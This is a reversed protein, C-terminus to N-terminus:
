PTVTEAPTAETPAASAAPTASIVPTVNTSADQTTIHIGTIKWGDASKGFVLDVNYLRNTLVAEGKMEAKDNSVNTDSFKFSEFHRPSAFAVWNDYSGVEEKINSSLLDWSALHDGNKLATMFTAGVSSVTAADKNATCSVLLLMSLLAVMVIVFTKKM